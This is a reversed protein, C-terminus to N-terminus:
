EDGKTPLQTKEKTSIKAKLNNDYGLGIKDLPSRKRSLIEDLMEVSKEFKENDKIRTTKMTIEKRLLDV